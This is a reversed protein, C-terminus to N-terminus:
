AREAEFTWRALLQGARAPAPRVTWITHCHHCQWQDGEVLRVHLGQNLDPLQCRHESPHRRKIWQGQPRNFRCTDPM